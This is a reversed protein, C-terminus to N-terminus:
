VPAEEEEEGEGEEEEEYHFQTKLETVCVGELTQRKTNLKPLEAGSLIPMWEFGVDKQLIIHAVLLSLIKIVAVNYIRSTCTKVNSSYHNIPYNTFSQKIVISRAVTSLM